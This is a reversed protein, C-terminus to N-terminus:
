EDLFDTQGWLSTGFVFINGKNIFHEVSGDALDSMPHDYFGINATDPPTGFDAGHYAQQGNQIATTLNQWNVRM